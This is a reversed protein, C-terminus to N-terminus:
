RPGGSGVTCGNHALRRAQCVALEADVGSVKFRERGPLGFDSASHTARMLGVHRHVESRLLYHGIEHALARGLTRTLRAEYLLEPESRSRREEDLMREAAARSLVIQNGPSGPGHFGIWGLVWQTENPRATRDGIEVSLRAAAPQRPCTDVQWDLAVGAETWIEAAERLIPEVLRPPMPDVISVCIAIRPTASLMALAALMGVM